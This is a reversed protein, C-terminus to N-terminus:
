IINPTSQRPRIVHSKLVWWTQRPSSSHISSWCPLSWWQRRIYTSDSVTRAGLCSVATGTRAVLRVVPSRGYSAIESHGWIGFKLWTYLPRLRRGALNVPSWTNITLASLRGCINTRELEGLNNDLCVLVLSCRWANLDMLSREYRGWLSTLYTTRSHLLPRPPLSCLLHSFDITRGTYKPVLAFLALGVGRSPPVSCSAQNRKTNEPIYGLNQSRPLVLSLSSQWVHVLSFETPHYRFLQMQINSLNITCPWSLGLCIWISILQWNCKKLVLNFEVCLEHDGISRSANAARTAKCFYRFQNNPAWTVKYLSWLGSKHIVSDAGFDALNILHANASCCNLTINLYREPLVLSAASQRDRTYGLV